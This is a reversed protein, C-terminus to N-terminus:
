FLVETDHVNLAVVFSLSSFGGTTEVVVRAYREIVQSAPSTMTKRQATPGSTVSSFTIRDSFPDTAGNDTSTQIKITVDTGTFETVQLYGTADFNDAQDAGLDYAAGPDIFSVDDVYHVEDAAGPSNVQAIVTCYVANAPATATVKALTWDSTSDSVATGTSTNLYTASSSYWNVALVVNRAVTAAKFWGQVLYTRGPTVSFGQTAISSTHTASANSTGTSTIALSGTGTHAEDTSHAVTANQNDTWNGIGDNFDTNEGTLSNSLTKIGATLQDCWELGYANAQAQVKFTLAADAGRTGDYNVQKAVMCAAPNGQSTGRCYMLHVDTEPLASLVEHQQDTAANFFTTIEMAGDRLGIIREYASKNIGTVDLVAAPCSINDVSQVDGSLQYGGVLLEDGLGSTKSM